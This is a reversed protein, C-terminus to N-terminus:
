EDKKTKQNKFYIEYCSLCDYLMAELGNSTITGGSIADVENLSQPDAKGKVVDISIFNGAEDFIKKGIFQEQFWDTNIEAGLGPTEGDHDFNTGFISTLDDSLAVYGYIPGWLGKGEVPVVFKEKGDELIGIFVPLAREGVPKRIEKKMDVDFAVLEEIVEGSANVVYSNSVYKDYLTVANSRDSEISISALINKKKEVEINRKQIPQLVMAATSLIAAVLIVMVSSFIFIYTNSFKKM